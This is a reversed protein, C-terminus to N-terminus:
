TEVPLKIMDGLIRQYEPPQINQVGGHSGFTMEGFYIKGEVNYLDVRVFVFGESLKKAINIMEDFNDPRAQECEHPRDQMWSFPAKQFNMDYVAHRPNVPDEVAIYFFKPEGSFCFFKYEVGLNELYEEAIICPPMHLYHLKLPWDDQVFAINLKLWYDLKKISKKKDLMNKNKVFIINQSNAGANTKLVFSNPLKDFNIENATKWVGLLPIVYKSGIKEEVWAKVRYKDAVVEKIPTNDFLLLWHLKEIYTKPNDLNLEMGTHRYYWKKVAQPYRSPNMRGFYWMKYKITFKSYTSELGMKKAAMYVAKKIIVFSFKM